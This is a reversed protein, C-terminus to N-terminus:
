GMTRTTPPESSEEPTVTKLRSTISAYNYCDVISGTVTMRGVIGGNGRDAKVASSDGADSPSDPEAGVGCNSITGDQTVMGAVAGAMESGLININVKLLTLNEVTGGAVVGFLGYAYDTNTATLNITLGSIMHGRGDFTGRFPTSTDTITGSSRVGEGIPTWNEDSLVIDNALKITVDSMDNGDNVLEALGRLQAETSISFETGSGNYWSTDPDVTQADSDAPIFAAICVVTMIAVALAAMHKSSPRM